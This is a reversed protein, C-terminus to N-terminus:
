VAASAEPKKKQTVQVLPLEPQEIVDGVAEQSPQQISQRGPKLRWEFGLGELVEIREENICSKEGKMFM